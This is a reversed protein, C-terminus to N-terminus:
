DFIGDIAETFVAFDEDSFTVITIQEIMMFDALAELLAAVAIEAADQVPYGYIGTSISPFAVAKAGVEAAAQVARYYASFLLAPEGHTGGGWIPGVTHVVFKAPLNFGPTVVAQGTECHGIDYSAAQLEPGAAMSIARAVGGGHNLNENAANVIADVAFTTIDGLAVELRAM